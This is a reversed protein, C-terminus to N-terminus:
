QYTYTHIYIYIHIDIQVASVAPAPGVVGRLLPERSRCGLSARARGGSNSTPGSPPPAVFSPQRSEFGLDRKSIWMRHESVQASRMRCAAVIGGDTRQHFVRRDPDTPTLVGLLSCPLLAKSELTYALPSPGHLQFALNGISMEDCCTSTSSVAMRWAESGAV